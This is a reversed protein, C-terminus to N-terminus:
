IRREPFRKTKKLNLSKLLFLEGNSETTISPKLDKDFGYADIATDYKSPKFEHISM